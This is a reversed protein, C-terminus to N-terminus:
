INNYIFLIIFIKISQKILNLHITLNLHKINIIDIAIKTLIFLKIITLDPIYKYLLTKDKILLYIIFM